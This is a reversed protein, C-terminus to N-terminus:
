EIWGVRELIDEKQEPSPNCEENEGFFWDIIAFRWNDKNNYESLVNDLNEYYEDEDEYYTYNWFREVIDKELLEELKSVLAVIEDETYTIYEKDEM